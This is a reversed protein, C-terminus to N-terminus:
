SPPRREPREEREEDDARLWEDGASAMWRAFAIATVALSVAVAVLDPDAVLSRADDFSLM